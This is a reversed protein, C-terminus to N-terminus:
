PGTEMETETYTSGDDSVAKKCIVTGGDNYFEKYDTGGTTDVDVRNRLAMYLLMLAAEVTPTATPAAQSLESMTNTNFLQEFLDKGATDAVGLLDHLTANNSRTSIAAGLVRLLLGATSAAGHAAVINEDWVGDAIEDVADTALAAANVAGAAFTAAAIAGDTISVKGSATDLEGTGTGDVIRLRGNADTDLAYAGGTVADRIQTAADAALADADVANTAIAAATIAGAEIAEVNVPINGDMRFIVMTDASNTATFKIAVMDFNLEGATLDLEYMGTSGIESVTDTIALTTWAGAGTKSYATDAVTEGTKFSEPSAKDVMPFVLYFLTNKQHEIIM